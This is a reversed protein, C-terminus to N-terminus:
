IRLRVQLHHLFDESIMRNGVPLQFSKIGVSGVVLGPNLHHVDGVVAIATSSGKPDPSFIWSFGPDCSLHSGREAVDM